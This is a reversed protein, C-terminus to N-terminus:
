DISVDFLSSSHVLRSYFGEGKFREDISFQICVLRVNTVCRKAKMHQENPQATSSTAWSWQGVGSVLEISSDIPCRNELFSM